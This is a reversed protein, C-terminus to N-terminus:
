GEPDDSWTDTEISATFTGWVRSWTGPAYWTVVSTSKGESRGGRYIKVVQVQLAGNVVSYRHDGEFPAVVSHQLSERERFLGPYHHVEGDPTLVHVGADVQWNVDKFEQEVEDRTTEAGNEVFYRNEGNM